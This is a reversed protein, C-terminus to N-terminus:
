HYRIVGGNVIFLDRPSLGVIRTALDAPGVDEWATGNWHV